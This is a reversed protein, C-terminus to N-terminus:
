LGKDWLMGFYLPVCNSKTISFSTGYTIKCTYLCLAWVTGKGLHWQWAQIHRMGVCAHRFSADCKVQRISWRFGTHSWSIYFTDTRKFWIEGGEKDQYGLTGDCQTSVKIILKFHARTVGAKLSHPTGYTAWTTGPTNEARDPLCTPLYLYSRSPTIKLCLSSRGRFRWSKLKLRM